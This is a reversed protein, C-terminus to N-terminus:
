PNRRESILSPDSGNVFGATAIGKKKQRSWTGFGLVGIVTALLAISFPEPVPTLDITFFM